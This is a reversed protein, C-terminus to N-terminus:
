AALPPEAPPEDDDGPTKVTYATARKGLEPLRGRIWDMFAILAGHAMPMSIAHETGDPEIAHIGANGDGMDHILVGLTPPPPPAAPDVAAPTPAGREYGMENLAADTAVGLRQVAAERDTPEDGSAAAGSGDSADPAAGATTAASEPHTETDGPVAATQDTDSM